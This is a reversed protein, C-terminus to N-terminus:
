ISSLLILPRTDVLDVVAWLDICVVWNSCMGACEQVKRGVGQRERKTEGQLKPLLCRFDLTVWAIEIFM